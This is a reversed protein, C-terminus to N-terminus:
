RWTMFEKKLGHYLQNFIDQVASGLEDTKVVLGHKYLFKQLHEKDGDYLEDVQEALESGDYLSCIM